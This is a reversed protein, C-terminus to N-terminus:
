DKIFKYIKLAREQWTFKKVDDFATIVNRSCDTVSVEIIKKALDEPFDSKFFYANKVNLIEKISPINSAIIPRKSAMYEFMKIPSTEKNEKFLNSNPLVLIDASNIFEELKAHQVFGLIDVNMELKKDIVYKKIDELYKDVGGVIQLHYNSPLFSISDILVRVGKQHFLSGMYFIRIEPKNKIFKYNKINEFDSLSVGDHAVIINNVGKSIYKDQLYQNIVVMGNIYKSYKAIKRSFHHAEFFVDFKFFSIKKFFNLFFLLHLHRTYVLINGSKRFRILRIFSTIALSFGKVNAWLFENFKGLFSIDLQSLYEILFNEKISYFDFINQIKQMEKTNRTKGTWLEVSNFYHSFADCMKLIQLTNAKESPIRLSAIYILKM